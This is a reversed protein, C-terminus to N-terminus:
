RAGEKQPQYFYLYLPTDGTSAENKLLPRLRRGFDVDEAYSVPAFGVQLALDRRVANLHNPGRLHVGDETRWEEHKLSHEFREPAAGATTMVGVLSTCDADPHAEIASVVRHVYDHAVWDDDDVFAVFRGRARELLAQRKEGITVGERQDILVEVERPWSLMQWYIEDGLRDLQARRAPLTCICISLWCPPSEFGFQAYPQRRAKRSNYVTEDVNWLADNKEYLADKAAKGWAHHRHEIIMEDIFVLRGMASLVETQEADSFLSTYEPEYVYGFQEWLRRGFIPLTCLASGQFGDDFHLAGDLLPWHEEMADLVRAAYGNKVPVMDDSALLLVDWDSAAGGNCAAIKSEHRDVTVMCGLAVFRQLVEAALSAEDDRDLVVEILIPVGAMSRYKELVSLAQLPRGRTPMRVLLRRGLAVSASATAAISVPPLPKATSPVSAGAVPVFAFACTGEGHTATVRWRGDACREKLADTLRPSIVEKFELRFPAGDFHAYIHANIVAALKTLAREEDRALAVDTHAPWRAKGAAIELAEAVSIIM